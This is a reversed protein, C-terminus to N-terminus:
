AWARAKVTYDWPNPHTLKSRVIQEWLTEAEQLLAAPASSGPSSGTRSTTGRASSGGAAKPTPTRDPSTAQTRRKTAVTSDGGQGPDGPAYGVRRTPVREAVAAGSSVRPM